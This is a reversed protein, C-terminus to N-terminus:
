LIPVQNAPDYSKSRWEDVFKQLLKRKEAVTKKSQIGELVQCLAVFPIKSASHVMKSQLGVIIINFVIIIM